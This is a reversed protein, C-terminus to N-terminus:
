ANRASTSFAIDWQYWGFHFLMHGMIASILGYHWFLFGFLLSQSFSLFVISYVVRRNSTCGAALYFPVQGIAYILSSFLLSLVILTSSAENVLILGFFAVANMLGWRAIVEEVIGGYLVCGDLGLAKHMAHLTAVSQKDLLSGTVWYYLYCFVILGAVSYLLTPLVIPYLASLGAKGLLIVELASANLGTRKSLIAGAVSMVFVILLTHVIAFRTFKQKIEDSSKALLFFMLRKMAIVIGPISICFLVIILPWHFM